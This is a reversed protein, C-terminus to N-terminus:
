VANVLAPSPVAEAAQPQWVSVVYRGWEGGKVFPTQQPLGIDRGSHELLERVTQPQIRTEDIVLTFSASWADFKPCAFVTKYSGFDVATAHVSWDGQAEFVIPGDVDVRLRGRQRLEQVKGTRWPLRARGTATGAAALAFLVLNRPLSMSGDPERHVKREAEEQNSSPRWDPDHADYRLRNHLIPSTSVLKVRVRM